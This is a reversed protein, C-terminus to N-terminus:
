LMSPNECYTHQNLNKCSGSMECARRRHELFGDSTLIVNTRLTELDQYLYSWRGMKHWAVHDTDNFLTLMM